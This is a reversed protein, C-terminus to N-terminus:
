GRYSGLPLTMEFRAGKGPEGTEHITIGTIDLIERTFFLGLGTNKGFGREFIREKEDAPIGNGDDECIILHNDGSEQVSFRITTIKEGYRVANDILNYFVKVILPDAFVEAGAPLANNITVNGLPAQKKATEVLARCDHWVPANVGINEYEKTFQIMTSIRQASTAAGQLYKNSTPDPLEKKLVDLYGQLVMLQNNIDHRTVGTLLNLKKNAINITQLDKALEGAQLKVRDELMKRETIDILFLLNVSSNHHQIQTGRVIVSRRRGDQTLIEIEYPLVENGEVRASLYSTVKDRYEEAVYTFVPTGVLMEATYGFARVSAPNVYIIKGDQGYVVIYEPLNEVLGRNFSESEQLAGEMKKRDTIDRINCQIVSTQDITYVNSVFEVEVKRGDKSELPLDEYRIYEKTQLEKFAIKSAAQDKFFGVNWLHKGLLEERSYGVLTEIFPNADIIEGTDRNLILIGDKASEFLRRYRTESTRIKEEVRKRETIDRVVSIGVRKGQLTVIHVNVEALIVTGDKRQHEAEFTSHGTSALEGLIENLPRSHYGTTFDLPGHELMEEHTCQMMRCAAENAEIFKGPKADPEVENIQIGDHVMDFIDRFKEESERLAEEAQMRDLAIGITNGLAEFFQITDLTFCNKRFANIQLIGIIQNKNTRIPILAVSAYGEHICTNRPHYRPDKTEPLELLPFSNNTWCTGGPTFLPNNPDALGSIVLGCTCELRINGNSDRCIGGNQDHEVLTNEKLLFGNPFGSQVFYPFDDGAKLRIGVADAHTVRKIADLVSKISDNFEGSENLIGLVDLSLQRYIEGQKRDTIDNIVGTYVLEDGHLVPESMGELWITEGSPKIFRGEVKWPGHSQVAKKVSSFFVDSDDPHIHETLVKFMDDHVDEIGFIDKVRDSIYSLSQSGDSKVHFRFVVGPINNATERFKEESKRLTEDTKKRETIDEYTGLVGIIRSDKDRLPVKATRLWGQTGDLKIQLEEYNLKPLGTKMVQQDDARYLDATAASATEYDTKGVLESPDSYGCDVALPKNCGLYVSNLDKWFVRQPITDLVLQLMQRSNFLDDEIKKRDTIDVLVGRLGVVTHGHIIPVSYTIVPFTSGDKRQGIYEIAGLEEGQLIRQINAALRQHDDPVFARFASLGNELDEKSYGFSQLGASNLTIIKGQIDIEFVTQPLLEILERYRTESERIREEGAALESYKRRLENESATLQEYAAKLEDQAQKEVTINRVYEIIGTMKGSASDILPFSYLDLWGVAKGADVMPVTERAPRGTQLTKISPCIECRETRGHYVEWCKRGILPLEHLYWKEMTPNVQVVTMTMDLLSIGDKISSFINNLLLKQERLTGEARRQLVAKSVNHALETFQSKLEGGKQLYFDAGENLAQIVIEERGRGTFLIFPITNGSTRVRKLFEIGDMGPMQYDSVIADYNESNLLTLAASATTCTDVSFQGGQELYRKGIELLDPEDDVYLTRYM